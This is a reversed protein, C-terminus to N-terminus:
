VWKLGGMTSFVVALFAELSGRHDREHIRSKHQCIMEWSMHPLRKDINDVAPTLNGLEAVPSIIGVQLVAM